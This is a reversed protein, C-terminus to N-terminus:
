VNVMQVALDIARDARKAASEAHAEDLEIGICRRGEFIAAVCTTGSGLFPDLVVDGQASSSEILERLLGVPKQNPHLSVQGSQLRQHRLVSGRRLRAALAGYGKARNAASIEYVAFTIPEHASGWPLSLDGTGIIGKDWILQTQSCLPLDSLDAPGFVYAHRGRRLLKLSLGIAGAVDLSGDDGAIKQLRKFRRSSQFDKGYPPDTVLLDVSSKPLYPLVSFCDGLYITVGGREYYPEM